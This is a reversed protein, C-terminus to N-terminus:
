GGAHKAPAREDRIRWVEYFPEVGAEAASPREAFTWANPEAPRRPRDADPPAARVSANLPLVRLSAVQAGAAAVAARTSAAGGFPAFRDPVGPMTCG